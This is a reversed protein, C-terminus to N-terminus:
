NGRGTEQVEGGGRGVGESDIGENMGSRRQRGRVDVGEEGGRQRM